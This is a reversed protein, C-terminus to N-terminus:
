PWPALGILDFRLHRDPARLRSSTRASRREGDRRRVRKAWRHGLALAGMLAAWNRFVEIGDGMEYYSRSLGNFSTAEGLYTGDALFQRTAGRGNGSSEAIM